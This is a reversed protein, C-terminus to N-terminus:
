ANRLQHYIEEMVWIGQALLRMLHPLLFFPKLKNIYCWSKLTNYAMSVILVIGAKSELLSVFCPPLSLIYAKLSQEMNNKEGCYYCSWDWPDILLFLVKPLIHALLATLSWWGGRRWVCCMKGIILITPKRFCPDTQQRSKWLWPIKGKQM